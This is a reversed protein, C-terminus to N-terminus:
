SMWTAAQKAIGQTPHLGLSVMEKNPVGEKVDTQKQCVFMGQTTYLCKTMSDKIACGKKEEKKEEFKEKLWPFNEYGEISTASCSTCTM